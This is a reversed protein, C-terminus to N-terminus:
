HACQQTYTQRVLDELGSPDLRQRDAVANMQEELENAPDIKGGRGYVDLWFLASTRFARVESDICASAGGSALYGSVADQAHTAEHAIVAALATDQADFWRDDIEIVHRAVSYRAYVGPAMPVFVVAVHNADLVGHLHSTTPSGDLLALAAQTRADYAPLDEAGVLAGPLLLSSLLAALCFFGRM